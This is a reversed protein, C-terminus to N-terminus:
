MQFMSFNQMLYAKYEKTQQIEPCRSRVDLIYCFLYTPEMRSVYTMFKKFNTKNTHGSLSCITAYCLSCDDPLAATTPNQLIEEVNVKNRYIDLFAAFQIGYGKGIIGSFVKTECKSLNFNKGNGNTDNAIMLNSLQELSRPTCGAAVDDPDMGTLCTPDQRVYGVVSPHVGNQAGWECWTEVNPVLNIMVALRDKLAASMPQAACNDSERNGTAVIMCDKPLTFGAVQRELVLSYLTPQLSMSATNIEDIVIMHKGSRPIRESIAFRAIRQSEDSDPALYPLKWDIVDDQAPTYVICSDYGLDKYIQRPLSTKGVGPGGFIMLPLKSYHCARAIEIAQKHDVNLHAYEEDIIQTTTKTKAM